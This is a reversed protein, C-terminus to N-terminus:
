ATHELGWPVSSITRPCATQIGAPSCTCTSPFQSPNRAAAPTHRQGTHFELAQSLISEHCVLHVDFTEVQVVGLYRCRKDAHRVDFVQGGAVGEGLVVHPEALGVLIMQLHRRDVRDLVGEGLAHTVM